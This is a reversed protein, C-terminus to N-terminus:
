VIIEFTQYILLIIKTETSSFSFFVRKECNGMYIHFIYNESYHIIYKKYCLIAINILINSLIFINNLIKGIKIFHIFIFFNKGKRYLLDNNM